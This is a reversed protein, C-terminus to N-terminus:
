ERMPCESATHWCELMADLQTIDGYQYLGYKTPVRFKEPTRKWTQTQGNRRWTYCRGGEKPQYHFEREDIAQQKTIM